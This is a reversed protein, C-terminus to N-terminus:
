VVSKRDALYSIGQKELWPWLKQVYEISFGSETVMIPFEAAVPAITSEWCSQANCANFDYSHWVAGLNKLNDSPVHDLWGSLHNSWVLGSVLIVNAAGVGRVAAVLDNMGAAQYNVKAVGNCVGTQLCMWSSEKVNGSDPFPENYLEFLVLQNDAFAKAVSKWFTWLM